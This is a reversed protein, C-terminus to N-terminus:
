DALLMRLDPLLELPVVDSFAEPIPAFWSCREGSTLHKLRLGFAHLMLRSYSTESNRQPQYLPDGLIGIGLAYLHARIQHRYGTLPSCVLAAMDKQVALTQFNTTAPKGFVPDAKTLHQRGLNIKLPLDVTKAQWDPPPSALCLYFKEVEREKFQRNLERHASANKALMMLGSTDKDLRHVLWLSGHDPQLLKRVHPLDKQYGDPVSLLGAPKDVLLLDEDEFIIPITSPTFGRPDGM